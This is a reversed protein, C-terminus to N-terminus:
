RVTGSATAGNTHSTGAHTHSVHEDLHTLHLADRAKGRARHALDTAQAGLVGAASQVTPHDKVRRAVEAIQEYRQRGAKAGLVYGAAFGVAMSLKAMMGGKGTGIRGQM